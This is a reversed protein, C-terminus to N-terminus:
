LLRTPESIHILSLAVAAKKRRSAKQRGAQKVINQWVEDKKQDPMRIDGIAQKLQEENM